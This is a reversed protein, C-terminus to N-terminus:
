QSQLDDLEFEMIWTPVALASQVVNDLEKQGNGPISVGYGGKAVQELGQTGECQFSKKRYKSTNLHWPLM